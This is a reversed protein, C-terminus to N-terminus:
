FTDEFYDSFLKEITKIEKDLVLRWIPRPPITIMWTGWTKRPKWKQKPQDKFVTAFLFKRQKDTMKYTVWYEHILWLWENLSYIEVSDTTKISYVVSNKLRWTRLLPSDPSTTSRLWWPWYKWHSSKIVDRIHEWLVKLTKKQNIELRKKAWEVFSIVQSFTKYNLTTM